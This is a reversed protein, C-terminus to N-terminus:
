LNYPISLPLRYFLVKYDEWAQDVGYDPIASSSVALVSTLLLAIVLLM